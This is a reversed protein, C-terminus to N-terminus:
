SAELDITKPVMLQSVTIAFDTAFPGGNVQKLDLDIQTFAANLVSVIAAADPTQTVGFLSAIDARQATLGNFVTAADTLDAPRMDFFDVGDDDLAAGSFDDYTVEGAIPMVVLGTRTQYGAEVYGDEVYDPTGAAEAVGNGRGVLCCIRVTATAAGTYGDVALTYGIIKGAAAGGPLRADAIRANQRCSLGLGSAFAVDFGVEVARARMLLAARAMAILAELSQRGRDTKFYSARRVDGIPLAGDPEATTPPDVPADVAAAGLALSITEADGPETLLAQCDAELTFNVTETRKRSVDYACKFTPLLAWVPISFAAGLGDSIQEVSDAPVV